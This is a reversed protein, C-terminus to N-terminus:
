KYDRAKGQSSHIKSRTGYGHPVAVLRSPEGTDFRCNWRSQHPDTRILTSQPESKYGLYAMQTIQGVREQNAFCSFKGINVRKSTEEEPLGEHM